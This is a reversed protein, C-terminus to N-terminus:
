IDIIEVPIAIFCLCIFTMELSTRALFRICIITFAAFQELNIFVVCFTFSKEEGLRANWAARRFSM